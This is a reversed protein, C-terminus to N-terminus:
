YAYRQPFDTIIASVNRKLLKNFIKDNNVTWVVVDYHHLRCSKVLMPTVLTYHPVVFDAKSAKLRKVPFIETIRRLISAHEYGILLGVKINPNIKKIKKLVSDHFSTIVFQDISYYATVLDLVEQEYGAEKLEIDLMINGQCEELVDRLLPPTYGELSTKRCLEEYTMSNLKKKNLHNNHFIVLKGDSTIRVDFEVMKINLDIAIQFAEKTNEVKALSKAGRHAIILTDKKQKHFLYEFISSHTQNSKQKLKEKKM